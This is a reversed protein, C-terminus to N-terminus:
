DTGADMSLSTHLHTDGWYVNSPFGRRAYPSYSKGAYADHLLNKTDSTVPIQAQASFTTLTLTIVLTLIPSSITSSM